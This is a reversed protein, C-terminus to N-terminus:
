GRCCQGARAAEAEAALVLSALVDADRLRRDRGKSKGRRRNKGPGGDADGGTGGIGGVQRLIAVLRRPIDGVGEGYQRGRARRDVRLRPTHERFKARNFKVGRRIECRQDQPLQLPHRHATRLLDLHQKDQVDRRECPEEAQSGRVTAAVPIRVRCFISKETM